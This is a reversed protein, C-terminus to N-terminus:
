KSAPRAPKKPLKHIVAPPAQRLKGAPPKTAITTEVQPVVPASRAAPPAPLAAPEPSKVASGHAPHAQRKALTWWWSLAKEVRGQFWAAGAAAAESPRQANGIGHALAATAHLSDSMADAVADFVTMISEAIQRQMAVAGAFFVEGFMFPSLTLSDAQQTM